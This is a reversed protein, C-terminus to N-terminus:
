SRAAQLLPLMESLTREVGARWDPLHLDFSQRFKRTDLRSNLPRPAPSPYDRTPIGQVSEPTARLPLGADRGWAVVMRAYDCWNVEGDACV